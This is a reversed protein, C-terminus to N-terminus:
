RDNLFEIPIRDGVKLGLEDARGGRLEIVQNIMTTPGYTPCPHKSCPPVNAFIAQIKGEELFIMDLSIAVNKMWFRTYRPPNFTFLMGRDDALSTRYMLGIEQQQPTQAVELAIAKGGMIATASIPLLQGLNTSPLQQTEAYTNAQSNVTTANSCGLLLVLILSPLLRFASPLLHFSTKM